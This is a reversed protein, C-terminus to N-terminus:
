SLPEEGDMRLENLLDHKRKEMKYCERYKAIAAELDNDMFVHTLHLELEPSVGQRDYYSVVFERRNRPHKYLLIGYVDRSDSGGGFWEAFALINPDDISSMREQM